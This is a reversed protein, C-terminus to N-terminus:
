PTAGAPPRVNVLAARCKRCIRGNHQRKKRASKSPYVGWFLTGCAAHTGPDGARMVVHSVRDVIIWCPVQEVTISM